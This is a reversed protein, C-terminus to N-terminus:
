SPWFGGSVGPLQLPGWTDHRFTAESGGLQPGTRQDHFHNDDGGAYDRTAEFGDTIPHSRLDSLEGSVSRSTVLTVPDVVPAPSSNANDASPNVSGYRCPRLCQPAFPTQGTLRKVLAEFVLVLGLMALGLMVFCLVLIVVVM